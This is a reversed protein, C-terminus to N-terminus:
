FINSTFRSPHCWHTIHGNPLFEKTEYSRIFELESKLGVDIHQHGKSDEIINQIKYTHGEILAPGVTNESLVAANTCKVVQEVQFLEKSM